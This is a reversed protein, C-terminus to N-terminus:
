ISTKYQVYSERILKPASKTLKRKSPQAHRMLHTTIVELQEKTLEYIDVIRQVEGLAEECALTMDTETIDDTVVNAPIRLKTM